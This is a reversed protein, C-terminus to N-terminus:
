LQVPQVKRPKPKYVYPRLFGDGVPQEPPQILRPILRRQFDEVLLTTTFIDASFDKGAVSVM